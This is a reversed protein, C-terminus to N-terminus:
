RYVSKALVKEKKFRAEKDGMSFGDEGGPSEMEFVEWLRIETGPLSTLPLAERPGYVTEQSPELGNGSEAQRWGAHSSLNHGIRILEILVVPLFVIGGAPLNPSLAKQPESEWPQKRQAWATVPGAITPDDVTNMLLM